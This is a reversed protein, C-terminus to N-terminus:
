YLFTIKHTRKPLPRKQAPTLVLQQHQGEARVLRPQDQSDVGAKVQQAQGAPVLLREQQRLPDLVDHHLALLGAAALQGGLQRKTREPSVDINPGEVCTLTDTLCTHKAVPM